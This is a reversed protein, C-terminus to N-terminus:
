YSWRHTHPDCHLQVPGARNLSSVVFCSSFSFLRLYKLSLVYQEETFGTFNRWYGPFDEFQFTYISILVLM